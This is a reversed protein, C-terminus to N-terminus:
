WNRHIRAIAALGLDGAVLYPEALIKHAMLRMDYRPGPRKGAKIRDLVLCFTDQFGDMEQSVVDIVGCHVWAFLNSEREIPLALYRGVSSVQDVVVKDRSFERSITPCISPGGSTLSYRGVVWHSSGCSIRILWGKVRMILGSTRGLPIGGPESAEVISICAFAEM